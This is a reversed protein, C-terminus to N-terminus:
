ERFYSRKGIDKWNVKVSTSIRRIRAVLCVQQFLLVMSNSGESVCFSRASGSAAGAHRDSAMLDRTQGDGWTNPLIQM